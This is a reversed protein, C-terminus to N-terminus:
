QQITVGGHLPSYHLPFTVSSSNYRKLNYGGCTNRMLLLFKQIIRHTFRLKSVNILGKREM